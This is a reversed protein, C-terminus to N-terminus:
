RLGAEKKLILCHLIIAKADLVSSPLGKLFWGVVTGKLADQLIPHHAYKLMAVWAVLWLLPECRRLPPIQLM